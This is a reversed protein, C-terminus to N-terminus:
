IHETLERLVRIRRVLVIHRVTNIVGVTCGFAALVLNIRGTSIVKLLHDSAAWAGGLIMCLTTDLLIWYRYERWHAVRDASVEDSVSLRALDITMFHAGVSRMGFYRDYGCVMTYAEWIVIISLALSFWFLTKDVAGATRSAQLICGFLAPVLLTDLPRSKLSHLDGFLVYEYAFIWCLYTGVFATYLTLMWVDFQPGRIEMFLAVVIAIPIGITILTTLDRIQSVTDLRAM